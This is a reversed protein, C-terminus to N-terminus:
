ESGGELSATKPEPRTPEVTGVLVLAAKFAAREITELKAMIVLHRRHGLKAVTARLKIADRGLQRVATAVARFTQRGEFPSVFHSGGCKICRDPRSKWVESGCGACEWSHTIEPESNPDAENM